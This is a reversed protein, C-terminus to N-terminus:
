DLRDWEPPEHDALRDLLQDFEQDNGKKAKNKLYDVTLYASLKEAAASSLFQNISIGDKKAVERIKNHVSDPLRVTISSM